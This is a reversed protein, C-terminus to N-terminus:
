PLRSSSLLVVAKTRPYADGDLTRRLLLLLKKQEITGMVMWSDLSQGSRFWLTKFTTSSCGLEQKLKLIAEFLGMHEEGDETRKM